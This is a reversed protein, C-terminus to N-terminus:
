FENLSESGPVTGLYNRYSFGSQDVLDTVLEVLNPVTWRNGMTLDAADGNILVSHVFDVGVVQRLYYAVENQYVTTGVQFSQLALYSELAAYMKSAVNLAEFGDTLRAIISVRVEGLEMPSVHVFTGIHVKSNLHSRLSSLEAENPLQKGPNIVFVHAVGDEVSIKDAGLRGICRASSGFGLVKESEEEYDVDSVLNRLRVSTLARGITSELPEEDSGGTVAETNIVSKLYALPVTLGTISYGGINYQQGEETATVTVSGSGAGPPINCTVDTAYILTGSNDTVLYGAPIQFTVETLPATLSFTVTAKAKTGKERNVGSLILYQLVMALPLRNAYYLLEAFGLGFGEFFARTPSGVSFNNLTGNSAVKVRELMLEVLQEESRNDITPLPLDGVILDEIAM